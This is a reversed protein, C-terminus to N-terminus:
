SNMQADTFSYSIIIGWLSRIQTGFFLKRRQRISILSTEDETGDEITDNLAEPLRADSAEPVITDLIAKSLFARDPQLRAM